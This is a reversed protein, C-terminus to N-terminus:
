AARGVTLQASGTREVRFGADRLITELDDARREAAADQDFDVSVIASYRMGPAARCVRIGERMRSTGSPLPRHGSRALTRSVAAAAANTNMGESYLSAIRM